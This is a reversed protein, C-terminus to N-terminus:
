FSLLEEPIRETQQRHRTYSRVCMPSIDHSRVTGGMGRAGTRKASSGLDDRPLVTPYPFATECAGKERSALRTIEPVLSSAHLIYGADGNRKCRYYVRLSESYNPFFSFLYLQDVNTFCRFCLIQTLMNLKILKFFQSYLLIKQFM